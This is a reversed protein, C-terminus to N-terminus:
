NAATVSDPERTGRLVCPPDATFSSRAAALPPSLEPARVETRGQVRVALDDEGGGSGRGGFLIPV